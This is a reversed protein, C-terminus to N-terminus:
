RARTFSGKYPKAAELASQLADQRESRPLQLVRTGTFTPILVSTTQEGLQTFCFYTNLSKEHVKEVSLGELRSVPLLQM